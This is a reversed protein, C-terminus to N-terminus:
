TSALRRKAAPIQEIGRDSQRQRQRRRHQSVIQQDRDALAARDALSILPQEARRQDEGPLGRHNCRRQVGNRQQNTRRARRQERDIVIQLARRASQARRFPPEEPTDRQGKGAARDDGCGHEGERSGQSIEAGREHDGAIDRSARLGRGDGNVVRHFRSVGHRRAHQHQHNRRHGDGDHPQGVPQLLPARIIWARM